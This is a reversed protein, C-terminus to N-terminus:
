AAKGKREEGKIERKVCACVLALLESGNLKLWHEEAM